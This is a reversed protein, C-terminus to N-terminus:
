EPVTQSQCIIREILLWEKLVKARQEKRKKKREVLIKKIRAVGSKEM